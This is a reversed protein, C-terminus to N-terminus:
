RPFDRHTLLTEALAATATAGNPGARNYSTTGDSFGAIWANAYTQAAALQTAAWNDVGLVSDIYVGHYYNFLYIPHNKSTRATTSYRVLGAVDGPCRAGAPNALTGTLSYTHTFVPVESGAAYGIAETISTINTYMAKEAATVANALTLWHAADAPTGGNFHYRNSWNKNVSQFPFTKVIKISPTAAM